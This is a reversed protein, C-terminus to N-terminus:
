QCHVMVGFGYIIYLNCNLFLM